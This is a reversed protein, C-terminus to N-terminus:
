NLEIIQCSCRNGAVVDNIQEGPVIDDWAKRLNADKWFDTEFAEAEAMGRRRFAAGYRILAIGVDGAGDVFGDVPGSAETESPM